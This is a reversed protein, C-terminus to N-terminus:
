SANKELSAQINKVEIIQAMISLAIEQPLKAGIDLGVPGYIRSIEEDTFGAESLRGIRKSHTKKSGLAGVYAVKSKLLIKLAEDDIKPDHTLLVCYSDENLRLESLAVGPWETILQDPEVPFRKQDAFIRRPDMVIVEFSLEKALKVLPISIHAAGIIILRPKRLFIQFFYQEDGIESISSSRREYLGLAQNKIQSAVRGSTESLSDDTLMLINRHSINESALNKILIVPRNAKQYEVVKKLINKTETTANEVFVNIKGGCTLGVSWATEDSVGFGLLSPNGTKIVKIAEEIVENEVCGGSVSGAVQMDTTISMMSGIGRPASGWTQIVTALAFPQNSNIWDSIKSLVDDMANNM